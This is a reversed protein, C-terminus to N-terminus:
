LESIEKYRDILVDIENIDKPIINYKLLTNTKIVFEFDVLLQNSFSYRLLKSIKFKLVSLTLEFNAIEKNIDDISRTIKKSPMKTMNQNFM